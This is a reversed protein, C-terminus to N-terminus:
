VPLHRIVQRLRLQYVATLNQADATGTVVQAGNYTLTLDGSGNKMEADVFTKMGTFTTDGTASSASLGVTTVGTMLDTAVSTIGNANTNTDFNSVLIKEVDTTQVASITHGANTVDGAVAIALTDTGAGGNIADGAQITTGTAGNDQLVSNFIDDADNGSKVDTSTSLTLTQGTAVAEASVANASATTNTAVSSYEISKTVKSNFATGATGYVNDQGAVSGLFDFAAKMTALRGSAAVSSDMYAVAVADSALGLNALVIANFNADTGLGASNLLLNLTADIGNDKAHAEFNAQLTAGPAVGYVTVAVQNILVANTPLLSLSM